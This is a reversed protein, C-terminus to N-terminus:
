ICEALLFFFLLGVGSIYFVARGVGLYTVVEEAGYGDCVDIIYAVSTVCVDIIRIVCTICVDIIRIVSNVCVDINRIVSSIM